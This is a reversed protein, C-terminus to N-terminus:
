NKKLPLYKAGYRRIAVPCALISVLEKAKGNRTKDRKEKIEKRIRL